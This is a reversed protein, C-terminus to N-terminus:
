QNFQTAFYDQLFFTYHVEINPTQIIVLFNLFNRYKISIENKARKWFNPVNVAAINKKLINHFICRRLIKAIFKIHHDLNLSISIQKHYNHGWSKWSMIYKKNISFVHLYKNWPKHKRKSAFKTWWITLLYIITYM